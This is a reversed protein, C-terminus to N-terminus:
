NRLEVILNGNGYAPATGAVYGDSRTCADMIYGGGRAVDNSDLQDAIASKVAPPQPTKGTPLLTIVALHYDM